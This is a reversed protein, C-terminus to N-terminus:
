DASDLASMLQAKTMSSYGTIGKAKAQARLEAVTPGSRTSRAAPSKTAPSKTAPSKTAPSKTAPSKTAPKKTALNKEAAPISTPWAATAKRAPSKAPDDDVVTAAPPPTVPKSAAVPTSTVPPTPEVSPKEVPPGAEVAPTTQGGSGGLGVLKLVEDRLTSVDSEARKIRKRAAKEVRAVEDTLRGIEAELRAITKDKKGPPKTGPKKAGPEKASPQKQAAVKKDAEKKDAEKRDVKTKGGTATDKKGM